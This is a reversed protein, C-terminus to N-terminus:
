DRARRRRGAGVRQQGGARRRHRSKQAPSKRGQGLMQPDTIVSNEFAEQPTPAVDLHVVEIGKSGKRVEAVKILNSGIDLGIYSGGAM